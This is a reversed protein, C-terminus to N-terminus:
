TRSSCPWSPTTSGTGFTSDSSSGELVVGLPAHWFEAYSEGPLNAWVLAAVTSCILVLAGRLELPSRRLRSLIGARVPVVTVM